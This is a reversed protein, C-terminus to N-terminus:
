QIEEVTVNILGKDTHALRGFAATSLDIVRGADRFVKAPGRDTVVVVVSKNGSSVLVRAGLAFDWCAATLAEPDFPQGNAMRAGRYSEGYWSAVGTLVVREADTALYGCRGPANVLWYFFVFVCVGALVKAIIITM